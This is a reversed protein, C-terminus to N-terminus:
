QGNAYAIGANVEGLAQKVFGIANDRHGGKDPTAAQLDSLASRLSARANLMNPQYVAMAVAGVATFFIAFAIAAFWRAAATRIMSHDELFVIPLKENRECM